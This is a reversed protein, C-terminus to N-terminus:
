SGLVELQMVWGSPERPVYTRPPEPMDDYWDPNHAVMRDVGVLRGTGPEDAYYGAPEPHYTRTAYAEWIALVRVRSRARQADDGTDHHGVYWDIHVLASWVDDPELPQHDLEVVDGVALETGCCEYEWLATFSHVVPRNHKTM